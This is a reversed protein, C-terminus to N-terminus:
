KVARLERKSAEADREMEAMRAQLQRLARELEQSHEVLEQIAKAYPDSHEQVVAYAAFRAAEAEKGEVVRGPIGVITAGPEVEKVV